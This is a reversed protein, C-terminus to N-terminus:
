NLIKVSRTSWAEPRGDFLVKTSAWTKKFLDSNRYANLHDISRWLSITFYVRPDTASRTLELYECGEFARIHECSADFIAEFRDTEETRFTMKVIRKIM